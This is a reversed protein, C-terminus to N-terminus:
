IVALINLKWAQATVQSAPLMLEATQVGALKDFGKCRQFFYALFRHWSSDSFFSPGFMYYFFWGLHVTALLVHLGFGTGRWQEQLQWTSQYYHFSYSLSSFLAYALAHHKLLVLLLLATDCTKTWLIYQPSWVEYWFPMLRTRVYSIWWRDIYYILLSGFSSRVFEESIGLCLRLLPISLWIVLLQLITSESNKTRLQHRTSRM